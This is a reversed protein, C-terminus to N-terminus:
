PTIETEKGKSAFISYPSYKDSMFRLAATAAAIGAGAKLSNRTRFNRRTVKKEKEPM